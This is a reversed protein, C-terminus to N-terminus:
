PRALFIREHIAVTREQYRVRDGFEDQFQSVYDQVVQLKRDIAPRLHFVEVPGGLLSRAREALEFPTNAWQYPIEAYFGIRPGNIALAKCLEDRVWLHEGHVGSGPPMRFTRRVLRHLRSLARGAGLPLLILTSAASLNDAVRRHLEERSAADRRGGELGCHTFGIGLRLMAAIDEERRCRFEEASDAFGMNRAHDVPTSPGAETFATYVHCKPFWERSLFEALSFAADDLHPSVVRIEQIGQDSFWQSLRSGDDHNTQTM